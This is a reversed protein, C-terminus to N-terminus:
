FTCSKKIRIEYFFYNIKEKLLYQFQKTFMCLFTKLNKLNDNNHLTWHQTILGYIKLYKNLKM